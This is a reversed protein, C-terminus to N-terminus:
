TIEIHSRGDPGVCSYFKFDKVTCSDIKSGTFDCDDFRGGDFMTAIFFCDIFKVDDVDQHGGFVSSSFVTNFYTKDNIEFGRFDCDSLDVSDKFLKIAEDSRRGLTDLAVQLDPRVERPRPLPRGRKLEIKLHSRLYAAITETAAVCDRPSSLLKELVFIAGIRAEINPEKFSEHSGEDNKRSVDRYTGLLEVAKAYTNASSVESAIRAQDAAVKAQDAAAAAQRLAATAQQQAVVTRWILFPVGILAAVGLIYNRNDETNTNTFVISFASRGLATMVSIILILSIILLACGALARCTCSWESFPMRKICFFDLIKDM